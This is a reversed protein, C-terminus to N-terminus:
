FTRRRIAKAPYSSEPDDAEYIDLTGKDRLINILTYSARFDYGKAGLIKVVFTRLGVYKLGKRAANKEAFELERMLQDETIVKPQGDDVHTDEEEELKDEEETLVIRPVPLDIKGIVKLGLKELNKEKSEEAVAEITAQRIAEQEQVSFKFSDIRYEAENIIRTLEEVLLMVSDADERVFLGNHAVKNRLDLLMRWKKEFDHDRFAEKFYKTYNGQLEQKLLDLQDLSRIQMIKGVLDMKNLGSTHKYILEGLDDFDMLMVDQDVLGTYTRELHRRMTVKDNLEKPSVVRWWHPGIKQTFFVTLYRRLLNEVRYIYPYVDHALQASLDDHLIRIHNFGLRNKLHALFPQRYRELSDFHQGKVQIVFASEILDTLMGATDIRRFQLEIHQVRDVIRRVGGADQQVEKNKWLQEAFLLGHVLSEESTIKAQRDIALVEFTYHPSNTM